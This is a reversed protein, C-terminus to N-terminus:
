CTGFCSCRVLITVCHDGESDQERGSMGNQDVCWCYGTSPHCQVSEFSNYKQCTPIYHGFPLVAQSLDKRKRQCLTLKTETILLFNYIM